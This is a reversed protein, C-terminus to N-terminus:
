HIGVERTIANMDRLLQRDNKIQEKMKDIAHIVTTHNRNGLARGIKSLSMRLKAYALYMIIQRPLTYDRIRSQGLVESKPVTFYDAVSDILIDMTVAGKPGDDKPLFGV